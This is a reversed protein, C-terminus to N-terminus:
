TIFMMEPTATAPTASAVTAITHVRDTSFLRSEYGLQTGAARIGLSPASYLMLTVFLCVAVALACIRDFHKHTSM